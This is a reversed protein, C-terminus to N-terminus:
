RVALKLNKIAKAMELMFKDVVVNGDMISEWRKEQWTNTKITPERHGVFDTIAMAAGWATGEFQRIDVATVCKILDNTSQERRARLLDSASEPLPNMNRWIDVVQDNTVRVNAMDNAMVDLREMYETALGLTHRAEKARLEINGAHTTKWSRKATKLAFNLTNNCVVRVPTVCARISSSGDHSNSFCLYPVVEDGAIKEAPLRALMWVRKGGMLSGATEYRVDGGILNDTFAFAEENQVIQYKGTVLGLVAGDSTRVNAYQDPIVRGDPLTLQQREVKWDLGALRLADASTPADEVIVGLGHWPKERVSMMTEILASMKIEREPKM